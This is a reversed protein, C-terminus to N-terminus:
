RQWGKWDEVSLLLIWFCQSMHSSDTAASELLLLTVIQKSVHLTGSVDTFSQEMYVDEDDEIDNDAEEEYESNNGGTPNLKAALNKKNYEMCLRRTPSASVSLNEKLKQPIEFDERSIQNHSDRSM